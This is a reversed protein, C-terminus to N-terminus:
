RTASLAPEGRRRGGGLLLAPNLDGAEPPLGKVLDSSISTLATQAMRTDNSVRSILHGSRERNFFEISQSLIHRYLKSRIDALVRLAVWAM